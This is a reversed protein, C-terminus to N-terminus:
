WVECLVEGGLRRRRADRDALVGQSTSIVAIGLGGQVRPLDTSGRYVRRGPKSVRRVGSIVRQRGPAYKLSMKLEHGAKAPTVEFGNLYGEATLIKAIEAKLKSSPMVVEPHYVKNANRIRTLMDAVPDTVM